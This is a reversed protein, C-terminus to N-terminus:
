SCICVWSGYGMTAPMAWDPSKMFMAFESYLQSDNLPRSKKTQMSKQCVGRESRASKSRGQAWQSSILAVRGEWPEDPPM